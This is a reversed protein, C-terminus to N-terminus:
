SGLSAPMWGHRAAAPTATPLRAALSMMAQRALSPEARGFGTGVTVFPVLGDDPYGFGKPTVQVGAGVTTSVDV